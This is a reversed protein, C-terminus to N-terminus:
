SRCARTTRCRRRCRATTSRSAGCPLRAQAPPRPDVLGFAWDDIQFGGTFWDDTWSFVCTGALGSEYAARVQWALTEAQADEGDRISDIGFETLVLPRDGAINQLRGLYRRFDEEHHLYVNFCVFDLSSSLRSVRDPPFNAYSM